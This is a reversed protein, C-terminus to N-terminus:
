LEAGSEAKSSSSSPFLSAKKASLWGKAAAIGERAAEKAREARESPGSSPSPSPSSTSPTTSSPSAASAERDAEMAEALAAKVEAEAAAKEDKEGGAGEEEEEDEEDEGDEKLSKLVSQRDFMQGGMGQAKMSSMMQRMQADESSEPSFPSDEIERALARARTAPLQANSNASSCASTEERCLWKAVEEPGAQAGGRWLREALDTDTGELCDAAAMAVTRCRSGCKGREGKDKLTVKSGGKIEFDFHTLWEGADTDPDAMAEVLDLIEAETLSGKATPTKRFRSPPSSSSSSSSSEDDVEKKKEERLQSVRLAAHRALAECAECAIFKVDSRVGQPTKVNKFSCSFFLNLSFFSPTKRFLLFFALDGSDIRKGWHKEKERRKRALSRL